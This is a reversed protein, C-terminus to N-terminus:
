LEPEDLKAEPEDLKTEAEGLPKATEKILEELFAQAAEELGPIKLDKITAMVQEHHVTKKTSLESAMFSLFSVTSCASHQVALKADKQLPKQVQFLRLVQAMQFEFDASM